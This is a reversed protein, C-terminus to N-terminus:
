KISEMIRHGQNQPTVNYGSAPDALFRNITIDVQTASDNPNIVYQLNSSLSFSSGAAQWVAANVHYASFESAYETM